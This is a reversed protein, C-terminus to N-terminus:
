QPCNMKMQKWLKVGILLLLGRWIVLNVSILGFLGTIPILNFLYLLTLIQLTTQRMPPKISFGCHPWIHSGSITGGPLKQWFWDPM